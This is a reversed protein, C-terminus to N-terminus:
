TSPFRQQCDAGLCALLVVGCFPHVNPRDQLRYEDLLIGTPLLNPASIWFCLALVLISSFYVAM